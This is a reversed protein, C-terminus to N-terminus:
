FEARGLELATVRDLDAAFSSFKYMDRLFFVFCGYKLLGIFLYIVFPIFLIRSSLLLHLFFLFFNICSVTSVVVFISYIIVM